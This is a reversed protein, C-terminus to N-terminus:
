EMLFDESIYKRKYFEQTCVIGKKEFSDYIDHLKIKTGELEEKWVGRYDFSSLLVEDIKYKGIEDPSIVKIGWRGALCKMDYDILYKVKIRLQYPLMMLLRITHIGGGRIAFVSDERVNEFFEIITKRKIAEEHEYRYSSSNWASYIRRTAEFKDESWVDLKKKSTLSKLYELREDIVMIEDSNHKLYFCTGNNHKILMDEATVVGQYGFISEPYFECCEVLKNIYAENYYDVDQILVYDNSLYSEGIENEFMVDMLLKTFNKYSFLEKVQRPKMMDKQIKLITHFRGFTTHGHDSMYIKIMKQPLLDGYFRLQDDVYKRSERAQIKQETLDGQQGPYDERGNYTTGMLGLSIFPVHTQFAEHLVVVRARDSKDSLLDRLVDWYQQTFITYPTYLYQAKKEKELLNLFGYYLFNYNRKELQVFLDSEKATIKNLRFTEDDVATKGTFLTKFTSSTYPTVTYANEFTVATQEVEKLYPMDSDEGYELADLWLILTDDKRGSLVLKIKKLLEEVEQYFAEYLVKTNPELYEIYKKLTLFDKAILCDFIIKELYLQKDEQRESLEYLRRHRFFVHCIDFSIFDRHPENGRFPMYEEAYIDYFANQFYLEANEFMNYISFVELGMERLILNIEDRHCYSLNIYIANKEFSCSPIELLNLQVEQEKRSCICSQVWNLDTASESILVITAEERLLQDYTDKLIRRAEVYKRYFPFRKDMNYKFILQNLEYEIDICKLQDKM